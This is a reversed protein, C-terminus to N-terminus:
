GRWAENLIESFHQTLDAEIEWKTEVRSGDRKKLKQIRSISRNQIVSNHFFKTNREGDQLWKVKSKKKWYIGEKRERAELQGWLSKEKEKMDEDWGEDMGKQILLELENILRKKDEFINGFEEKNWTRIKAKLTKLKQQFRYM